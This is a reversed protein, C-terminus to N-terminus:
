HLFVFERPVGTVRGTVSAIFAAASEHHTLIFKIGEKRTAEIFDVVEGGPVGFIYKVGESKLTEAIVKACTKM